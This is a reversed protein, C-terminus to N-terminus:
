FFIHSIPMAPHIVNTSPEWLTPSDDGLGPAHSFSPSRPQAPWHYEAEGELQFCSSRSWTVDHGYLSGLNQFYTTKSVFDSDSDRFDCTARELISNKHDQNEELLPCTVLNKMPTLHCDCVHWRPTCQLHCCLMLAWNCAARVWQVWVRAMLGGSQMDGRDTGRGPSFGRDRGLRSKPGTVECRSREGGMGWTWASRMSCSFSWEYAKM